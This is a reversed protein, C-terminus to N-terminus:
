ESIEQAREMETVITAIRAINRRAARLKSTDPMQGTAFQFRLKFYAERADELEEAAKELNLERVESARM